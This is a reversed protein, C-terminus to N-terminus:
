IKKGRVTNRGGSSVKTTMAKLRIGWKRLYNRYKFGLSLIILSIIIPITWLYDEKAVVMGTIDAKKLLKNDLDVTLASTDSVSSASTRKRTENRKVLENGMAEPKQVKGEFQPEIETILKNFDSILMESMWVEVKVDQPSKESANILDSKWVVKDGQLQCKGINCEVRPPSYKSNSSLKTEFSANAVRNTANFELILISYYENNFKDYKGETEFASVWEVPEKIVKVKLSESPRDIPSGSFSSSGSSSSGFSPSRRHVLKVLKCSDCKYGSPADGDCEEGLEVIGNGCKHVKIAYNIYTSDEGDSANIYITHNGTTNFIKVFQTQNTNITNNDISGNWSVTDNDIDTIYLTINVKDGKSPFEPDWNAKVTPPSNEIELSSFFSNIELTDNLKVLCEIKMHKKIHYKLAEGMGITKGNIKWNISYNVPQDEENTIGIPTCKLTDEAHAPIPDIKIRELTPLINVRVINTLKEENGALDRAVWTINHIGRSTLTVSNNNTFANGDLSYRLYQPYDEEVQAVITTGPLIIGNSANTQIQPPTKDVIVEITALSSNINGVNDVASLTISKNGETTTDLCNTLDLNEGPQIFSGNCGVLGPESLTINILLQHNIFKTWNLTNLTPPTTDTEFSAEAITWNMMDTANCTLTHNTDDKPVNVSTSVKGTVQTAFIENEDMKCTITLNDTDKDKTEITLNANEGGKVLLPFSINLDPPYNAIKISTSYTTGCGNENCPTYYLTIVDGRKFVGSLSDNTYNQENVEWTIQSGNEQDGDKDFYDVNPTLTEDFHPNKPFISISKLVPPYEHDLQFQDSELWNSYSEGDQARVRFIIQQEEVESANWTKGIDWWQGDHSVQFQYTITDNDLDNSGSASLNFSTMNWNSTWSINSPDTPPTNSITLSSSKWGSSASQNDIVEFSCTVQDGKKFNGSGISAQVTGTSSKSVSDSAIANGNVEWKHNITWPGYDPDSFSMSCNITSNAYAPSNTYIFDISPNSNWSTKWHLDLNDSGNNENGVPDRCSIHAYYDKENQNVGAITCQSTSECNNEMQSYTTDALSWRCSSAGSVSFRVVTKGDNTKDYYPSSSDDEISTISFGSPPSSDTHFDSSISGSWGGENDYVSCEVYHNKTDSPLTLYCALSGSSSSTDFNSPNQYNQLDAYPGDQCMNYNTPDKDIACSLSLDGVADDVWDVKVLQKVGGKYTETLAQNWSILPNDDNYYSVRAYFGPSYSTEAIKGEYGSSCRKVYYNYGYDDTVKWCYWFYTNPTIVKNVLGSNPGELPVFCDSSYSKMSKYSSGSEKPNSLDEPYIYWDYSAKCNSGYTYIYLTGIENVLYDDNPSRFKQCIMQDENIYVRNSSTSSCGISGDTLIIPNDPLKSAPRLNTDLNPHGYVLILTSILGFAVFLMVHKM